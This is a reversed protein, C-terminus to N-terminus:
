ILLKSCDTNKNHIKCFEYGNVTKKNCVNGTKTVACCVYIYHGNGISKKNAKWQESADDFDINVEFLAANEKETQSRTKM